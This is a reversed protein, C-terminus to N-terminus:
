DKQQLQKKVSGNFPSRQFCVPGRIYRSFTKRPVFFLQAKDRFCRIMEKNRKPSASSSPLHLARLSVATKMLRQHKESCQLPGASPPCVSVPFLVQSRAWQAPRARRGLCHLTEVDLCGVNGLSQEDDSEFISGSWDVFPFTRTTMSIISSTLAPPPWKRFLLWSDQNSIPSLSALSFTPCERLLRLGFTAPPSCGHSLGRSLLFVGDASEHDQYRWLVAWSDHM